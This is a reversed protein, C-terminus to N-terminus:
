VTCYLRTIELCCLFRFLNLFFFLIIVHYPFKVQGTCAQVWFLRNENLGHEADLLPQLTMGLPKTADFTIQKLHHLASM